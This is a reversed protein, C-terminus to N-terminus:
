FVVISCHCYIKILINYAITFLLTIQRKITTVPPNIFMKKPLKQKFIMLILLKLNLNHPYMKIITLISPSSNAFLLALYVRHVYVRYIFVKYIFVM